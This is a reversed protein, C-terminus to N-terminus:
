TGTIAVITDNAIMAGGSGDPAGGNGYGVFVNTASFTVSDPASLGTPATAFTTFSYPPTAVVQAASIAPMISILLAPLIIVYAAARCSKLLNAFALKLVHENRPGPSRIQSPVPALM